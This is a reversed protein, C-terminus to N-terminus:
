TLEDHRLKLAVFRSMPGAPSSGPVHLLTLSVPESLTLPVHVALALPVYVSPVVVEPVACSSRGAPHKFRDPVLIVQSPRSRGKWPRPKLSTLQTGAALPPPHLHVAVM